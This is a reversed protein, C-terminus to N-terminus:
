KRGKMFSSLLSSNYRFPWAFQNQMAELRVCHECQKKNGKGERVNYAEVNNGETCITNNHYVETGERASYWPNVIAM